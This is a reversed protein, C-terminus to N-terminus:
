KRTKSRQRSKAQRELRFLERNISSVEEVISRLLAYNDAYRQAREYGEPTLTVQKSAGGALSVSLYYVPGHGEGTHCHCGETGCRVYRERVSGRLVETLDPVEAVVRRLRKRLKAARDSM